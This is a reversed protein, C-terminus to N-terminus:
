RGFLRSWFRGRQCKNLMKKADEWHPQLKLCQEISAKAEPRGLEAQCCGLEYWALASQPFIKVVDNLYVIAPSYQGRKRLLRAAELKITPGSSGALSIAKSICNDAVPSKRELMVEARALWVRATLNDKTISNDSYAIAKEMLGDRACAVAKLALLEPNEPYFQLAKDAWIGAERYEGLEILMCVQGTWAEFVTNNKELVRSYNRLALEWDGALWCKLALDSFYNEDRIPEGTSRKQPSAEGFELQSFRDM